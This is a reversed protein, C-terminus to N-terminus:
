SAPIKITRSGKIFKLHNMFQLILKSILLVHTIGYFVISFIVYM